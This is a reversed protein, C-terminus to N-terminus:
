KKEGTTQTAAAAQYPIDAGGGPSSLTQGITEHADNHAPAPAALSEAVVGSSQSSPM